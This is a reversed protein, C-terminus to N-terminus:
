KKDFNKGSGINNMFHRKEQILDVLAADDDNSPSLQPMLESKLTQLISLGPKDDKPIGLIQIGRNLIQEKDADISPASILGDRVKQLYDEYGRKYAMLYLVEILGQNDVFSGQSVKSYMPAIVDEDDRLFGTSRAMFEDVRYPQNSPITPIMTEEIDAYRIRPKRDKPVYSSLEVNLPNVELDVWSSTLEYYMAKIKKCDKFVEAFKPILTGTIGTDVIFIAKPDKGVQQIMYEEALDHSVNKRSINCAVLQDPTIGQYNGNSMIARVFTEALYGDRYLFVIKADPVKSAEELIQQSWHYIIPAFVESATYYRYAIENILQNKINEITNENTDTDISLFRLLDMDFEKGIMEEVNSILEFVIDRAHGEPVKDKSINGEGPKHFYKLMYESGKSSDDPFQLLKLVEDLKADVDSGAILRLTNEGMRFIEDVDVSETYEGNGEVGILDDTDM